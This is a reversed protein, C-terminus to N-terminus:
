RVQSSEGHNNFTFAVKRGWAHDKEVESYAGPRYREHVKRWFAIARDHGPYTVTEWSGRHREFGATAAEAAVGSGRYAHLVFFAFVAFDADIAAPLQARAVILNFGAPRGDALILYPFLADPRKWWGDLAQVHQALTTVSSDAGLVGHDNPQTDEFEAIEHQYLPHLNKIVHADREEALRLEVQM